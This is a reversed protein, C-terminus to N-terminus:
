VLHLDQIDLDQFTKNWLEGFNAGKPTANDDDFSTWNGQLIINWQTLIVMMFMMMLVETFIQNVEAIQSKHFDMFKM